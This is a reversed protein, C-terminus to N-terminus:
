RGGQRRGSHDEEHESFLEEDSDDAGAFADYLDGARRTQGKGKTGSKKGNEAGKTRARGNGVGNGNKEGYGELGGGPGYHKPDEDDDDNDDDEDEDFDNDVLEFGYSDRANNAAAKRRANLLYAAIGIIFILILLSSGYIWTQTNKSVGFTPFYSPLLHEDYPEQEPTSTASPTPATETDADSDPFTTTIPSLSTPEPETTSTPGADEITSSTKMNVPRDPHDSPKDGLAATPTPISVSTTHVVADERDHDDDDHEGPLPLLGQISPDISEGFLNLKWDTWTGNHDNNANVDKVEVTWEGIGSEGWHAMSMFTWDNYGERAADRLRATSIHSRIGSPSILDVMLDGRRTHEVNMTVTVHELREMNASQLMDETVTFHSQLGTNGEPIFHRVHQWPSNFWAQPKVSTFNKAMEIFAWTDMKGYGFQHSFKKGIVTDQWDDGQDIPVATLVTLWQIDRWTLDPRVGLALAYIGSALPGAASTGGHGTYCQNEGVDTTHIADGSGSSYTVALLASCTESYYPHLGQRDIAGISVTYISNVYGDFNCNDDSFAGNGAAFVYISGLGGRGRQVADIMARKILIGPEGMSLGDDPPGWSCSYIDTKDYGYTMGLAEDADTIPKSLIRIGGVKANYALGVGCVDNRVAAVEGACRTGHRDDSLRPRPEPGKDNFDYSGEAYYNDKLDQSDMDLGDDVMVVRAGEGTFGQLWVGTVNLDHGLQQTNFIHWQDDFIPDQIDLTTKVYDRYGTPDDKSSPIPEAQRKGFDEPFNLHPYIPGRKEMMPKLKQKQHLLIGDLLDNQYNLDRRRKRRKHEDLAYKVLDNNHCSKRFLYHDKLHGLQGDLELGFYEAVTQPSTQPSLHLAYFDHTDYDRHPLDFAATLSISAVLWALLPLRM